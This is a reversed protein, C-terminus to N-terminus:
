VDKKIVFLNETLQSVSLPAGGPNLKQEVTRVVHQTHDFDVGMYKREGYVLGMLRLQMRKSLLPGIVPWTSASQLASEIKKRWKQKRSETPKELIRSATPAFPNMYELLRAASSKRPDTSIWDKLKGDITGPTEAEKEQLVDGLLKLLDERSRAVRSVAMPLELEYKKMYPPMPPVYTVIKRGMLHSEISTTSKFHFIAHAALIWPTVSGEYVLHLNPHAVTLEKWPDHSESPHPRVVFHTDPFHAAIAPLFDMYEKFAVMNQEAQGEMFRILEKSLVGSHKKTLRLGMDGGLINNAIGFSSPLLIFKGYQNKIKRSQDAYTEAACDRWFELRPSGTIHGRDKYQPFADNFISQQENGWFFIQDIEEITDASFRVNNGLFEKFTVVGEEDLSCIKHGYSRLTRIQGAELPTASKILFVGEPLQGAINYLPMKPGLVVTWGDEAAAQALTAKGDHERIVIELPLYLYKEPANTTM